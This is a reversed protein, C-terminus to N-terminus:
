IKSIVSWFIACILILGPLKTKCGHHHGIKLLNTKKINDATEARITKTLKLKTESKIKGQFSHVKKGISTWRLHFGDLQKWFIYGLFQGAKFRPRGKIDQVNM